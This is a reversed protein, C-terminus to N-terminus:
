CAGLHIQTCFWGSEVRCFTITILIGETSPSRFTTGSDRICVTSVVAKEEDVVAKEEDVMNLRLTYGSPIFM